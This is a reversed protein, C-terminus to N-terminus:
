QMVEIIYCSNMTNLVTETKNDQPVIKTVPSSTFLGLSEVGNREERLVWISKGVEVDMLLIGKISYEVPVGNFRAGDVESLTDNETYNEDSIHKKKYLKVTQLKKM